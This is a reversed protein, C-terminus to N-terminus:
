VSLKSAIGVVIPDHLITAHRTLASLTLWGDGVTPQENPVGNIDIVLKPQVLRLNLMPVLSQGGAIIVAEDGFERLADIAEAFSRAALYDFPASAM